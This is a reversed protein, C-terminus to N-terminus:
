GPSAAPVAKAEELRKLARRVRARFAGEDDNGTFGIRVRLECGQSRPKLEVLETQSFLAGVVIFSANMSERNMSVVRYNNANGLTEDVAVWLEACTLPKREKHTRAFAPSILVLLLISFLIRGM